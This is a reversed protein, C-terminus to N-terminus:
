RLAVAGVASRQRLLLLAIVALDQPHRVLYRRRASALALRVASDVAFAVWATLDSRRGTVCAGPFMRCKLTM